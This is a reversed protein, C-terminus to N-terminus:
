ESDGDGGGLLDSVRRESPEPASEPQEKQQERQRRAKHKEIIEVVRDFHGASINDIHNANVRNLVWALQAEDLNAEDALKRIHAARESDIPMDVAEPPEAEPDIVEDRGGRGDDDPAAAIGLAAKLTYRQLYTVTSGVAQVPNKAGTVDPPATLSSEESYGQSHSLICIVTVRGNPETQTRWNYYLGREHLPTDVAECIKDLKEYPYSPRGRGQDVKGTKLILPFDAKAEALAARFAKEAQHREWREQLGMLKEIVEPTANAGVARDLITVPTLARNDSM